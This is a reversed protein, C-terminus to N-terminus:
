QVPTQAGPAPRAHVPPGFLQGPVSVQWLSPVQPAHPPKAVSQWHVPFWVCGQECVFPAHGQPVAVHLFPLHSAVAHVGCTFQHWSLSL